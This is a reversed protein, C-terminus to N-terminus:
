VADTGPARSALRLVFLKGSIMAGAADHVQQPLSGLPTLGGSKPDM